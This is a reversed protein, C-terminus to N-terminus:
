HRRRRQCRHQDRHRHQGQNPPILAKPGAAAMAAVDEPSMMRLGIATGPDMGMAILREPDVATVHHVVFQHHVPPGLDWAEAQMMADEQKIIFEVAMDLTCLEVKVIGDYQATFNAIESEPKLEEVKLLILAYPSGDNIYIRHDENITKGLPNKTLLDQLFDQLKNKFTNLQGIGTEPLEDLWEPDEM